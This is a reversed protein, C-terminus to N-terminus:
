SEVTVMIPVQEYQAGQSAACCANALADAVDKSGDPPHDVRIGSKLELQKLETILPEYYYGKIKKTYILEKLYDHEKRLVHNQVIEVGQARIAQITEPFQWTDTRMEYTLFRKVISLVFEKLAQADVEIQQTIDPKFRYVLDIVVMDDERHVLAFGFSDGKLAPDIAAYYVYGPKGVFSDSTFNPEDGVFVLDIKWPDKYFTESAASPRAGYDRWAAEPNKQFESELSEKTINPNVEWTANQYGLMTKINKSKRHLQMIFDNVFLPSSISVRIGKHGFTQVSRALSFYVNEGSMKGKTDKFRALEDFLVCISTKGVLSSSNSHESRIIVNQPSFRIENSTINPRKAKFWDSNEVRNVTEAFITDKAQQESTAVNIIFIEHHSPLGFFKAPDEYQLLKFCEYSGIVSALFTKSSRMGWVLVLENYGNAPNYFERLVDIQKPWLKLELINEAFYVPDEFARLEM